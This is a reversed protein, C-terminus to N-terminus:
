YARALQDLTWTNEMVIFHACKILRNVIVWIANNKARTKLLVIVIEM